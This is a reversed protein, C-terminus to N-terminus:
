GKKALLSIIEDYIEPMVNDKILQEKKRCSGWEGDITEQTDEIYKKVKLLLKKNVEM